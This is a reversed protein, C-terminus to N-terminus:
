FFKQNEIRSMINKTRMDIIFCVVYMLIISVIVYLWYYAKDSANVLFSFNAGLILMYM